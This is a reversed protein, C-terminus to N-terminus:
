FQKSLNVSLLKREESVCILTVEVQNSSSGAKKEGMEGDPPRTGSSSVQKENGAETFTNSGKEDAFVKESSLDVQSCHNTGAKASSKASYLPPLPPSTEFYKPCRRMM